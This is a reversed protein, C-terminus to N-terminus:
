GRPSGPADVQDHALGVAPQHGEMERRVVGWHRAEDHSSYM